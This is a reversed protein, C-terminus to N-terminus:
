KLLPSSKPPSPSKECCRKVSTSFASRAFSTPFRRFRHRFGSRFCAPSEKGAWEIAASWRSRRTAASEVVLHAAAYSASSKRAAPSAARSRERAPLLYMSSMAGHVSKLFPLISSPQWTRMSIRAATRTTETSSAGIRGVIDLSTYLWSPSAASKSVRLHDSAANPSSGIPTGRGSGRGMKSRIRVSSSRAGGGGLGWFFFPSTTGSTSSM